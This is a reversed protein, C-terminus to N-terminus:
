RPAPPPCAALLDAPRASAAQQVRAFGLAAAQAALRASAAVVRCRRLGDRQADDLQAWVTELAKGSSLLLVSGDGPRRLRARLRGPLALPVRDYVDAQICRAGRAALGAPISGRGGPATVLGVCRGDVQLLPPLALLGESDMRQPWAVPGAGRAQLARATGEGVALWQPAPRVRALALLADAAAVAAPSTFVVLPCALAQQLAQRAAPDRRPVLAWPSLALLRGGAARVAARLPGHQGRPRLSVLQWGAPPHASAEMAPMIRTRGARGAGRNQFM